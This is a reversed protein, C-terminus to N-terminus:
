PSHHRACVTYVAKGYPFYWSHEVEVVLQGSPKKFPRAIALYKGLKGIQSLSHNGTFPNPSADM